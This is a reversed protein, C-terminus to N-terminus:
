QLLKSLKEYWTRGYKRSLAEGLFCYLPMCERAGRGLADRCIHWKHYNIAEGSALKTIRAPYLHCSLPKPFPIRHARYAREIACRAIGTRFYAFACEKGNVLPTVFRGEADYDFVGTREVEAVGGPVMFPRIRGMYEELLPIENEELPAGADGEVCCAGRCRELHCCFRVDRLDDSVLIGDVSIM